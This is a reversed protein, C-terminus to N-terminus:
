MTAAGADLAAVKDAQAYRASLVIIPASSWGRLGYVVEVDTVDPLGLDLIM